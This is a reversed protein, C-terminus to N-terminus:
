KGVHRQPAVLHKAQQNEGALVRLAEIGFHARQVELAETLQDAGPEASKELHGACCNEWGLGLGASVFIWVKGTEKRLQLLFPTQRPMGGIRVRAVHARQQIQRPPRREGFQLNVLDSAEHCLQM